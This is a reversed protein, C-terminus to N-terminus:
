ISSHPDMFDNLWLEIIISYGSVKAHSLVRCRIKAAFSPKSGHSVTYFIYSVKSSHLNYVQKQNKGDVTAGDKCPDKEDKAERAELTEM